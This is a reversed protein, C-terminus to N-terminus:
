HREGRPLYNWGEAVVEDPCRDRMKGALLEAAEPSVGARVTERRGDDNVRVVEWRGKAWPMGLLVDLWPRPPPPAKAEEREAKERAWMAERAAAGM